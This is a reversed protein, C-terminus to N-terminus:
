IPVFLLSKESAKNTLKNNQKDKEQKSIFQFDIFLVHFNQLHM